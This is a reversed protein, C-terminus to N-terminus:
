NAKFWDHWNTFEQHDSQVPIKDEEIGYRGHSVIISSPIIARTTNKKFYKKCRCGPVQCSKEHESHGCRCYNTLGGEKDTM